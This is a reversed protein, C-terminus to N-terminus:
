TSRAPSCTKTRPRSAPSSTPGFAIDPRLSRIEACFRIADDRSHRRKMRKLILDDGAQLSLHLHPM